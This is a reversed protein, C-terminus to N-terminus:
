IAKRELEADLLESLWGICRRPIYVLMVASTKDHLKILIYRGEPARDDHQITIAGNEFIYSTENWEESDVTKLGPIPITFDVIGSWIHLNPISDVTKLESYLEHLDIDFTEVTEM